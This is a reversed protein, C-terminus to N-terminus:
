NGRAEPPREAANKPPYRVRRLGDTMHRIALWPHRALMRPGSYRMVARMRNRRTKEYCHIPCKACTPKDTMLPCKDLKVYAYGLLEQCDACLDRGGDHNARCYILLMARVTRKERRARRSEAM